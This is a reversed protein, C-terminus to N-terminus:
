CGSGCSGGGCGSGNTGAGGGQGGAGNGIINIQNSATNFDAPLTTTVGGTVFFWVLCFVVDERKILETWTRQTIQTEDILYESPRFPNQMPAIGHHALWLLAGAGLILSAYRGGNRIM